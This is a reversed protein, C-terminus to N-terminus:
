RGAMCTMGLILQERNWKGGKTYLMWVVMLHFAVSCSSASLFSDNERQLIEEKNENEEKKREGEGMEWTLEVKKTQSFYYNKPLVHLWVRERYLVNQIVATYLIFSKREEELRGWVNRSGSEIVSVRSCSQQDLFSLNEWPPPSSYSAPTLPPPSFSASPSSHLM